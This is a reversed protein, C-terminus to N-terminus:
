KPQELEKTIAEIVNGNHRHFDVGSEYDWLSSQARELLRDKRKCDARLREIEARCEGHPDCDPEEDFM